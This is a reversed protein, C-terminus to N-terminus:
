TSGDRLFVLKDGDSMDPQHRYGGLDFGKLDEPDTLRNEIIFRAMSGRAKKAFFSVIKPAGNKMEYFSPTIVRTDLEKQDVASFYEVSACNVLAQARNEASRAKLAAAIKGGWFEYLNRGKANALRSGMELRHPAIIDQPRLVGYLGSLICLHDQAYRQADADLSAADLGAYTDGAFMELARKEGVGSGFAAFRDANLAGLKPSIHMLKELEAGSLRSATQALELAEAQFLPESGGDAKPPTEDLRKAPSVVVLM